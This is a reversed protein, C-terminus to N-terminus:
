QDMLGITLEMGIMDQADITKTNKKYKKLEQSLNQQELELKKLTQKLKEVNM